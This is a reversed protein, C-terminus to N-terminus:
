VDVTKEEPQYFRIRERLARLTLNARYTIRTKDTNWVSFQVEKKTKDYTIEFGESDTGIELILQRM